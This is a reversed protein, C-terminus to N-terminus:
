GLPVADSVMVQGPFELSLKEIDEPEMQWGIGGLNEELHKKDRSKVISVVNEQSVLWNIAVQAPTKNYKKSMEYLVETIPQLIAGKDLPRYAVVIIDNEKCFKMVGSYVVERVRLNYHVQNCVIPSKSFRVTDKLHELGFNSVGINKILGQDKLDNLAQISKELPFSESYWHLLYLDLYDVGLRKLSAKCSNIIGDYSLDDGSVKSTIFLKKRDVKSNKLAEAIIEETHGAAYIEATDIHTVGIEIADQIAKVDSIDDNLLDREFLGGMQWTGIGFEPISFGNKLTKNKIEM